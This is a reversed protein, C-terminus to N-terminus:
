EGFFEEEVATYVFDEIEMSFVRNLIKGKKLKTICEKTPCVYAGRGSLKGTKDLSSEGNSNKVVRILERKDKMQRCCVCMRMPTKKKQM